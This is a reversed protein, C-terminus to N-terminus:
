LLGLQERIKRFTQVTVGPQPRGVADREFQTLLARLMEKGDKTKAAQIPTKNGLAPVKEHIWRAWHAEIM